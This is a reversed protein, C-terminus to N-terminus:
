VIDKKLYQWCLLFSLLLIEQVAPLWVNSHNAILSAVCYLPTTVLVKLLIGLLYVNAYITTQLSFTNHHKAEIDERLVEVWGVWINFPILFPTFCCM